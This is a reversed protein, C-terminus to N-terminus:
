KIAVLEGNDLDEYGATIIKAGANLGSVIEIMGESTRGTEVIVAKAKNGEVIYLMDGEATKQILSIPVVLASSKEYNAIKMESSMNPHLKKNGGLRVEVKFSRSVPDIAQSVYSLKTNITENIDPLVLTVPDGQSVKGLYNEGLNAEAKLKDKSVVRIGSNPTGPNAMDGEKINVADIVGSIPSKIRYMDRQTAMAARGKVASEYNAKAQLLQVETGIKQAWLKQQKEYIAKALAINPDMARIQQEVAAADLTALTQGKGVRQGPKVLVRTVVGPMQPTANVNEDGTIQSQVEIFASFAQPQLEMVSVPTAKQPGTKGAKAELDRIKVDIEMRDKKLKALKEQDNGGGEGGCSALIASTILLYVARKM